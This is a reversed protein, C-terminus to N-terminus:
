QLPRSRASSWISVADSLSAASAVDASPPGVAVGRSTRRTRKINMPPRVKCIILGESGKASDAAPMSHSAPLQDMSDPHQTGVGAQNVFAPRYHSTPLPVGLKTSSSM